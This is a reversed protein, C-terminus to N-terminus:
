ATAHGQQHPSQHGRRTTNMAAPTRRRYRPLWVARCLLRAPAPPPRAGPGPRGPQRRHAGLAVDRRMAWRARVAAPSARSAMLADLDRRFADHLVYMLAWEPLRGATDQESM